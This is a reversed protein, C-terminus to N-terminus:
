GFVLSWVGIGGFRGLIGSRICGTCGLWQCIGVLLVYGLVKGSPCPSPHFSSVWFAGHLADDLDQVQEAAGDGPLRPLVRAPAPRRNAAQDARVAQAHGRDPDLLRLLLPQLRNPVNQPTLPPPNPPSPFPPTPLPHFPPPPFPPSTGTPTSGPLSPSLIPIHILSPLTPTSPPPTPPKYQEEHSTTLVLTPLLNKNELSNSHRETPPLIANNRKNAPTSPARPFHTQGLNKSIDIDHTFSM